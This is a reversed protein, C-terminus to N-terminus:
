QGHPHGGGVPARPDAAASSRVADAVANMCSSCYGERDCAGDPTPAASFIRACLANGNADVAHWLLGTGTETAVHEACMNYM